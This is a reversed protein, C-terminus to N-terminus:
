FCSDSGVIGLYSVTKTQMLKGAVLCLNHSRTLYLTNQSSYIVFDVNNVETGEFTEKLQSILLPITM